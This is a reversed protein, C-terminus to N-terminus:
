GCEVFAHMVNCSVLLEGLSKKPKAAVLGLLLSIVLLIKMKASHVEAPLDHSDVTNLKIKVFTLLTKRAERDLAM